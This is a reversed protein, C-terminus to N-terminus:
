EVEVTVVEYPTYYKVYEQADAHSYACYQMLDSIKKANHVDTLLQCEQVARVHDTYGQVAQYGLDVNEVVLYVQM